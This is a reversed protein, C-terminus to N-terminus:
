LRYAKKALGAALDEVMAEADDLDILHRVVLGAVWNASARRWLDHRAPISPFSRTDDNFGATNYLGATEMVQDFYRQMGNLSDFFWWPPGLKLAPYHGALPALERGYGTEDLTFLILALRPDNAYKVLLPQLNRTFEVPVPIDAGKDRGFRAFFPLNHNRYAGVHLQMVLGDEISMRAMEMLMHGMFRAADNDDVQGRRARQFIAEAENASLEATYPSLAAHDTAVAGMHKFFARRNELALIFSRYDGVEIGSLRSLASVQESWGPRQLDLLEDPRFTPLIRGQWGSARMAQHAELPDTASDTTCLVEINFSEYLSRPRFEPSALKEAVQDYIAQATHGNLKQRVSFVYYLAYTLWLGTPTGRFLYFNDAFLQWIKRPDDEVANGGEGGVGGGAGRRTPSAGPLSAESGEGLSSAPRPHPSPRREDGPPSQIGLRELPIGQSYLMRFVYHDPQIFLEAPNGFTAQPDSFLRPSVHGHPSVLPLSTVRQYLYMALDAQRPDPGFIREEPFILEDHHSQAV